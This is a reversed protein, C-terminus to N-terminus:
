EEGDWYREAVKVKSIDDVFNLVCESDCLIEDFLEIYEEGEYIERECAYCNHIVAGNDKPEEFRAMTQLRSM